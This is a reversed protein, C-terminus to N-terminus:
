GLQAVLRPPAVQPPARRRRAPAAERSLLALAITRCAKDDGRSTAEELQDFARQLITQPVVHSVAEFVGPMGSPLQEERSDFLEEFLKEGPRLGVIEIGVDLDPELGALRIM